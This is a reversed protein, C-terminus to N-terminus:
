QNSEKDWDIGAARFWNWERARWVHSQSALSLRYADWEHGASAWAREAAGPLRPLLLFELDDRDRVTECWLAAEIGAIAGRDAETGPLEKRPDWDVGDRLTSPSYFPLGLRSRPEEQAPDQAADGHPRDFYLRTFPSMIVGAGQACARPVDSAAALMNEALVAAVEPPLQGLADSETLRAAERPEMWYQVLHGAQLRGRATEQWGVPLKGLGRVIEATREVFAAHASESMGFAEDGGLHLYSSTTFQDAAARFVDELLRGTDGHDLDLTGIAFGLAAAKSGRDSHPDLEPYAHFIAQVHGPVDIEPVLTVFREAAYAVLESVEAASYWGGPRDDVAGQGGVSTLLPWEPVELRWGQDDTLHLHLVNLKYLSAMDIVRRLTEPGHFTRSVDLSLGRWHYLPADRIDVAPLKAGRAAAILQRLTTLGRFAGEECPALIRVGRSSITLQYSEDTDHAGDARVGETFPLDDRVVVGRELRIGDVGSEITRGTDLLVESAFHDLLHDWQGGRSIRLRELPFEGASASVVRPRPLVPLAVSAANM